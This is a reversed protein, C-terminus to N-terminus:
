ERNIRQWMTDIVIAEIAEENVREPLPSEVELMEQFLHEAYSKVRDLPWEGRKIAILMERDWTRRVQLRGTKLYELGTHLLRVMHGASKADYGIRAVLEKRKQGMYGKFVGNQMAKLQARAYGIFADYAPQRARFHMRNNVLAQGEPTIYLYDEPELWLMGIVNPNQKCLLGVFKHYGYLVVDWENNIAEAHAWTRLGITWPAPPICVGMLDRDDISNPDTSPIFTGHAESGRRGLLILSPELPFPTDPFLIAPDIM